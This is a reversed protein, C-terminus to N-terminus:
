WQPAYKPADPIFNWEQNKRIVYYTNEKSVTYDEYFNFVGMADSGSVQKVKLYNYNLRKEPVIFKFVGFLTHIYTIYSEYMESYTHKIVSPEGLEEPIRFWCPFIQNMKIDLVQPEAKPVQLGIAEGLSYARTNRNIEGSGWLEILNDSFGCNRAPRYRRM